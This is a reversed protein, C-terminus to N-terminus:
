PNAQPSSSCCHLSLSTLEPRNAVTPLSSSSCTVTQSPRSPYKYGARWSDCPLAATGGKSPPLAARAQVLRFVGFHLSFSISALSPDSSTSSSKLRQNVIQDVFKSDRKITRSKRYEFEFRFHILGGKSSPFGDKLFPPDEM